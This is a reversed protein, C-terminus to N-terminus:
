PHQFLGKKDAANRRVMRREGHKWRPWNLDEIYRNLEHFESTNPRTKRKCSGNNQRLSWGVATSVEEPELKRGVQQLPKQADSPHINVFLWLKVNEILARNM